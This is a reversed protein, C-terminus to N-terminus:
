IYKHHLIITEAFKILNKASISWSLETDAYHKANMCLQFIRKENIYLEDIIEAIKSSDVDTIIGTGEPVQESIAGVNTAIVTKGAAFSMPIVGSQSARKYPLVVFDVQDLLGRFEDDEIYRNILKINSNSKIRSLIIENIGGSGAILLQLGPTKTKEFAEVLLDLGKYPEM